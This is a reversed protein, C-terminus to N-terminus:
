TASGDAMSRLHESIAIATDMHDLSCNVVLAADAGERLVEARRAQDYVAVKAEAGARDLGGIMLEMVLALRATSADERTSQALVYPHAYGDQDADDYCDICIKPAICTWPHHREQPHGCTGCPPATTETM